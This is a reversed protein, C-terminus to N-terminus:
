LYLNNAHADAYVTFSINTLFHPKVTSHKVSLSLKPTHFIGYFYEKYINPVFIRDLLLTM